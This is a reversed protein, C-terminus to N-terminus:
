CDTGGLQKPVFHKINRNKLTYKWYKVFVGYWDWKETNISVIWYFYQCIRISPPVSSYRLYKNDCFDIRILTPRPSRTLSPVITFAM